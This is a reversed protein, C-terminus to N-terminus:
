KEESAPSMKLLSREETEKREQRTVLDAYDTCRWNAEGHFKTQPWLAFLSVLSLSPLSSPPTSLM